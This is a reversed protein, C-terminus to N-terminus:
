SVVAREGSGHHATGSEPKRRMPIPPGRQRGGRMEARLRQRMYVVRAFHDSPVPARWDTGVRCISAPPSRQLNDAHAFIADIEAALWAEDPDIVEVRGSGRSVTDISGIM